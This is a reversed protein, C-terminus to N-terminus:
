VLPSSRGQVEKPMQNLSSKPILPHDMLKEFGRDQFAPKYEYLHSHSVGHKWCAKLVYYIKEALQLLAIKNHALREEATV